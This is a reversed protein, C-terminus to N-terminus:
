YNRHVYAEVAFENETVMHVQLNNFVIADSRRKRGAGGVVPLSATGGFIKPAYYFLIKDVIGADLAAWNVKSGAEIMLSLYRRQALTEVLRRLDVRGGPSDLEIVEVGKAELAKRRDHSAASTTAVLLDGNCSAVMKSHLPIRLLSDLVIRLLPRSRALGSRDNLLCDDALLTGIGTAIADSHHRVIQVHARAKESTIWGSNDEPAAIKGDLTVASKLMVLPKGRRMFHLFPENLKEAEAKYESAFEVDIGAARLKRFGGGSVLPNPDEMAAVVRAIGAAIVVDSCPGTRGHHACPELTIYLTAGRAREGAEELATVEAHKKEAYLHYGRGAIEGDCVVVAGVAPNPSTRGLGQRALKFAEEMFENKM